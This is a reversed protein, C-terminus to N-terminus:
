LAWHEINLIQTSLPKAGDELDFKLWSLTSNGAGGRTPRPKCSCWQLSLM